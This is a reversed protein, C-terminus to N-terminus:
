PSSLTITYLMGLYRGYRFVPQFRFVGNREEFLPAEMAAPKGANVIAVTEKDSPAKDSHFDYNELSNEAPYGFRNIGQADVWQVSYIGPTDDYFSKLEKMAASKGGTALAAQMGPRAVLKELSHELQGPVGPLGTQAGQADPEPHIAVLRWATGYLQVSDWYAQKNVVLGAGSKKFRYSGNGKEAAVIRSGLRVLPSYPQYLKSTLLNLGIQAPDVDYLIRGGTEMVWIGTPLGTVVPKIINGLFNEPKFLLSVSGSFTGDPAFVPYEMDVADYGEVARFVASLVPKREKQVRKVQEQGSIDKGEFRRYRAPEVTTMRGNDDVTSCDIAYSFAGCTEALVRRAGEGALGTKGLENAAGKLRGDLEAFATAVQQRVAELVLPQEPAAAVAPLGFLLCFLLALPCRM